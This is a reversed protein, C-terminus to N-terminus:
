RLLPRQVLVQRKLSRGLDRVLQAEVERARLGGPHLGPVVEDDREPAGANVSQRAQNDILAYITGSAEHLALGIRGVDPGTPLGRGEMNLRMWTQGGHLTVSASAASPRAM